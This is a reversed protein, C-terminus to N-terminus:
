YIKKVAYKNGTKQKINEIRHCEKCLTRGNNINWLEECNLAEELSKINNEKMILSFMKIHHAELYCHTKGCNQCTFNDKTFVDSRWQRNKFSNRIQFGLTTVGGKWLYSKDGRYQIVRKEIHEKTQKKGKKIISINKKTEETHKHGKFIAVQGKKFWGKNMGRKYIGKPM